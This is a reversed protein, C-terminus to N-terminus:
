LSNKKNKSSKKSKKIDNEDCGLAKNLHEILEASHYEVAHESKHHIDVLHCHMAMEVQILATNYEYLKQVYDKNFNIYDAKADQVATYDVLGKKYKDKAINFTNLAMYVNARAYPLQEEVKDLNNFARQIEYYLDQKFLDVENHAMQVQADAGKISHKLEMLNVQSELSVGVNLSNNHAFNTNNRGYGVGARLDPLYTRKIYKLSEEMAKGTSIIVQLDPSNKYAIEPAETRKFPFIHNEHQKYRKKWQEIDKPVTYEFTETQLIDFNVDDPLYMANDLDVIANKYGNKASIYDLNNGSLVGNANDWDPHKGEMMKIIEKQIKINEQAIDVFAKTRLVNYYKWKVDFLTSCLSDMFEYEAAIKYFEEMKIYATTKGFNWILQNVSVGVYPLDRYRKDYYVSNSNREYQFGVGAGIVPFYQSRAIGVNSKAVDLEYKKRKIKPSNKFALAVCDIVKLVSGNKVEVPHFLEDHDDHDEIALTQISGALMFVAILASCVARKMDM